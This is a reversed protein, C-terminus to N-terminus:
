PKRALVAVWGGEERVAAVKLGAGALAALVDGRRHEIIGSALFQGGVPLLGAVLPSLPIIVDAIINAIMLGPRQEALWEACAPADLPGHVVTLAVRNALANAAAVQAAVPDTDCALVPGAGLLKCAVALIGSGTGVDAVCVGPAVLETLWALCLATTAHGGTGFAMGPDLRLVVEGPQAAYPEWSPAVVLRGFHLPKFYAKWAEAWDEEQVWALAPPPVEGLGAARARELGEALRQQLQELDGAEPLYTRLTVRSPDGPVLDSYDWRGSAQAQAVDLPDEIAVGGALEALVAEVAPAAERGCRVTVELYRM